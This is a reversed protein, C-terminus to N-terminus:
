VCCIVSSNWVPFFYRGSTLDQLTWVARSVFDSSRTVGWRTLSADEAMRFRVKDVFYGVVVCVLQVDSQKIPVCYKCIHISTPKQSIVYMPNSEALPAMTFMKSFAQAAAFYFLVKYSIVVYWSSEKSYIVRRYARPIRCTIGLYLLNSSSPRIM